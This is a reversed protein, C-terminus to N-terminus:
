EWAWCGDETTPVKHAGLRTIALKIQNDTPTQDYVSGAIRASPSVHGDDAIAYSGDALDSTSSLLLDFRGPKDYRGTEDIRVRM